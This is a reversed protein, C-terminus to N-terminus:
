REVQSRDILFSSSGDKRFVLTSIFYKEVALVAFLLCFIGM